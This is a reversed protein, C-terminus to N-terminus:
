SELTTEFAKASTSDLASAAIAIASYSTTRVLHIFAPSTANRLMVTETQAQKLATIRAIKAGMRDLKSSTLWDVFTQPGIPSGLLKICPSISVSEPFIGQCLSLASLDPSFVTSAEYNTAVGGTVLMNHALLSFVQCM